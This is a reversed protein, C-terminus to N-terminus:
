QGAASPARDDKLCQYKNRSLLPTPNPGDITANRAEARTKYPGVIIAQTASASHRHCEIRDLFPRIRLEWLDVTERFPERSPRHYTQVGCVITYWGRGFRLRQDTERM